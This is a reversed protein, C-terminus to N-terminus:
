LFTFRKHLPYVVQSIANRLSECVKLLTPQFVAATLSIV